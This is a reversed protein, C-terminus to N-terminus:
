PRSRRATGRLHPRPPEPWEDATLDASADDGSPVDAQAEPQGDDVNFKITQGGVPTVAHAASATALLAALAVIITVRVWRNTDM